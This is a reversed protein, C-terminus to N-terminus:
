YQRGLKPTSSIVSGEADVVLFFSNAVRASAADVGVLVNVRYHFDAVARIQVKILNGPKGLVQLVQQAISENFAELQQHAALKTQDSPEKSPM